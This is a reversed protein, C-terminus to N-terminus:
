QEATEHATITISKRHSIKMLKKLGHLSYLSKVVVVAVVVIYPNLLLLLVIYPNLLLLLVIYPNLLLLLVIHLVM